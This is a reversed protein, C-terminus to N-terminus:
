IPQRTTDKCFSVRRRIFGVFALGTGLLVLVGPEPTSTVPGSDSVSGTFLNDFIYFSPSTFSGSIGDCPAPFSATYSGCAIGGTYDSLSGNNGPATFVLNLTDGVSDSSLIM